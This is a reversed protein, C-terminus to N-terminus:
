NPKGNVELEAFCTQLAALLTEEAFPKELVDVAGMELADHAFHEDMYGSMAIVKLRSHHRVLEAQVELGNSGPMYMDLLVCGPALDDMEILFAEGDAFARCQYDLAGLLFCTSRRVHADDDVIYVRGKM